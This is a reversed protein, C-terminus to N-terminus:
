FSLQVSAYVGDQTRDQGAISALNGLNAYALVFSMHKNPFYGAFACFWDDEAFANGAGGYINDPKFRYEGGVAVGPVVLYALSGELQPTYGDHRDGGFGLLGVQNAETLRVTGNLLLGPKPFIKTAALYYDIGTKGAEGGTAAKIIAMLRDADNRKYQLGFAVQPLWDPSLADGFLRLKAGFINQTSKYHSGLGLARGAKGTDMIQRAYTLELRDFLTIGLGTSTLDYDDTKAFTYYASGGIQEGNGYGTLLAWPVLGGGGTGEIGSIGGTTLPKGSGFLNGEEALAPAAALISLTVAALGFTALKKLNGGSLRSQGWIGNEPIQPRVLM